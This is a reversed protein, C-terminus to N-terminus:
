LEEERLRQAIKDIEVKINEMMPLEEGYV